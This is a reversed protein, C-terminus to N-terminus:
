RREDALWEEMFAVYRAIEGRLDGKSEIDRLQLPRSYVENEGELLKVFGILGRPRREGLEDVKFFLVYEALEPQQVVAFERSKQLLEGFMRRMEHLGAQADALRATGGTSGVFGTAGGDMFSDRAAVAETDISGLVVRPARLRDELDDPETGQRRLEIFAQSMDVGAQAALIAQEWSTEFDGLGFSIRCAWVHADAYGPALDAALVFAALADPLKQLQGYAMGRYYYAGANNEDSALAQELEELAKDPDPQDGTLLAMAQQLHEQSEQSSQAGPEALPATASLMSVVFVVAVFITARHLFHLRSQHM